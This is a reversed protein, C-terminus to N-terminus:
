KRKGNLIAEELLQLYLTKNSQVSYKDVVTERAKIGVSRRKDNNDILQSLIEVWENETDALFGNVGHQIITRNVGVPSMITPIELAMYQLGKLGCKGNAWEDDPLPMIGIDFSNLEAIEDKKNWAIGQVNLESDRYNSDGIVKISVREKYRAKIEKLFPLAYEFHQMTTISGSWGIIIVDSQAKAVPKYENTDITTPIIRVNNNFQKAYNALYDNGAVVFDSLKIIDKTKNPNKLFSFYRNAKSVNMLWISDDFDFIIPIGMKAAAQEFRISGTMSAERCIFVVNFESLRKIDNKRIRRSNRVFKYKKWYNGKSYLYKDDEGSIINSLKCEFGSDSLVQLYQEFRFRQNPARDLRHSAIFLVKHKQAVNM